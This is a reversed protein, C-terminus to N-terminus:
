TTLQMPLVVYTYEEGKRVVGPKSPDNVELIIEDDSLNKLVDILYRPNFGIELDNDGSYDIDM